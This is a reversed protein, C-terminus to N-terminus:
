PTVRGLCYLFYPTRDEGEYGSSIGMLVWNDKLLRNVMVTQAEEKVENIDHLDAVDDDGSSQSQYQEM